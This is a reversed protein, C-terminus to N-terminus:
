PNAALSTQATPLPLVSSCQFPVAQLATVAGAPPASVPIQPAAAFSM